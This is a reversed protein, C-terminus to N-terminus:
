LILRLSRNRTKSGDRRSKGQVAKGSKTAPETMMQLYDLEQAVATRPHQGFSGFRPHKSNKREEATALRAFTEKNILCADVGFFLAPWSTPNVVLDDTRFAGENGPNVTSQGGRPRDSPRGFPEDFFYDGTWRWHGHLRTPTKM